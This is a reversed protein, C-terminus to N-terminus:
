AIKMKEKKKIDIVYSVKIYYINNNYEIKIYRQNEDM